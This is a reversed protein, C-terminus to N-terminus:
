APRGLTLSKRITQKNGAKDHVKVTVTARRAAPTHLLLRIIPKPFNLRATGTNGTLVRISKRAMTVKRRKGRFVVPRRTSVTVKSICPGNAENAPCTLKLGAFGQKSVGLRSSGPRLKVERDPHLLWPEAGHTGDDAAFIVGNGRRAYGTPYSSDPGPLIDRIMRAGTGDFVWPELGTKPTGISLYLRNGVVALNYFGSAGEPFTATTPRATVGDTEYLRPDSLYAVFYVKGNMRSYYSAYSSDIGPALDGIQTVSVGDTIWPESGSVSTNATFILKNNFPLMSTPSSSNGGPQIDAVLTAPGGSSKFLEYGNTGDNAVMFLTGGAVTLSGPDSSASGPRLDGVEATTTGDSSWLEYGHAATYASFYVKDLYATLYSPNSTGTGSNIDAVLTAGGADIQWLERGSTPEHAVFFIRNGVRVFERPTSDEPGPWIDKVLEASNGNFRWLENGHDPDYAPFYYFGNLEAGPGPDSADLGPWLDEILKLKRNGVFWPEYGTKGNNASTWLRNGFPLFAETNSGSPGPNVDQFLDAQPMAAPSQTANTGLLALTGLLILAVRKM